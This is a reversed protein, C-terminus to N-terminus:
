VCIHNQQFKASIVVCTRPQSKTAFLAASRTHPADSPSSVHVNFTSGGLTCAPFDFAGAATSFTRLIKSVRPQIKSLLVAVKFIATVHTDLIVFDTFIKVLQIRELRRTAQFIDNM